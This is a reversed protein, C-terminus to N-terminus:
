KNFYKEVVKEAESSNSVCVVVYQGYQRIVTDELKKVEKPIYSKFTEKQNSIRELANELGKEAAAKNQFEFVAIEEATAGSSIYVGADRYADINYLMKIVNDDVPNLEDEFAAKELLEQGLSRIDVTFDEEKGACGPLLLIMIAMFLLVKMKGTTKM